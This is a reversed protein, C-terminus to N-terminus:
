HSIYRRNVFAHNNPTKITAVMPSGVASIVSVYEQRVYGSQDNIQVLYWGNHNSLVFLPVGTYFIGQVQGNYDPTARFNLFKGGNQNTVMAISVVPESGTADIYNKSMYGRRGDPTTVAYFNNRSGTIEVWTGKSYSGLWASSSSGDARLNLTETNRIVGFSQALAAGSLLIGMALTLLFLWTKRKSDAFCASKM